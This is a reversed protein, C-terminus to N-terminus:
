GSGTFVYTVKSQAAYDTLSMSIDTLSASFICKEDLQSNIRQQVEGVGTMYVDQRVKQMSLIYYSTRVLVNTM